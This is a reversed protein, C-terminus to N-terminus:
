TNLAGVFAPAAGLWPVGDIDLAVNLVLYAAPSWRGAADSSDVVELPYSGITGEASWSLLKAGRLRALETVLQSALAREPDLSRAVRDLWVEGTAAAAMGAADRAFSRTRRVWAGKYAVSARVAFRAGLPVPGSVRVLRPDADLDAAIAIYAEEAAALRAHKEVLGALAGADTAAPDVQDLAAKAITDARKLLGREADDIERRVGAFLATADVLEVGPVAAVIDDYLGAPLADLELVGVRQCGLDALGQGVAAGPKPTNVIEDLWATTKIWDAVRKSLATALAPTGEPPVLLLSEIWYPTFGTLWCVAAPRVLNTYLLFADLGQQAMAIQLRALRAELAAQPLESQDWGMLGRRMDSKGFPPRRIQSSERRM